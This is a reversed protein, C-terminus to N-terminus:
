SRGFLEFGEGRRPGEGSPSQIEKTWEHDSGILVFIKDYPDVIEGFPYFSFSQGFDGGLIDKAEIFSIDKSPKADWLCYDGVVPSLDCVVGKLFEDGFQAGGLVEGRDLM